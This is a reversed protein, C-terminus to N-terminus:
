RCLGILIGLGTLFETESFLQTKAKSALVAENIKEIKSRWDLFSISLFM